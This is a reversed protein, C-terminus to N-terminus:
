PRFITQLHIKVRQKSINLRILPVQRYPATWVVMEMKAINQQEADLNIVDDIETKVFDPANNISRYEATLKKNLEVHVKYDLIPYRGSFIFYEQPVNENDIKFDKQVFYDLIDGVQLDPIALKKYGETGKKNESVKVAENVNVEKISGDSKIIRAGIYTSLTNTSNFGLIKKSETFSFESFAELASKDNIKVLKRIISTYYLEKNFALTTFFRLKSKGSANVEEYQAIVVASEKSYSDPITRNKFMPMDWNWVTDRVAKARTEYDDAFTFVAFLLFTILTFFLRKM